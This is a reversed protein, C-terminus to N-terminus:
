TKSKYLKTLPYLNWFCFYCIQCRRVHQQVQRPQQGRRLVCSVPLFLIFIQLPSPIGLWQHVSFHRTRLNPTIILIVHVFWFVLHWNQTAIVHNIISLSWVADLM